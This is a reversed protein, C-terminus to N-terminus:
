ELSDIEKQAKDREKILKNRKAVNAEIVDESPHLKFCIVAIIIGVLGFLFLIGAFEGDETACLIAVVVFIIGIAMLIAGAIPNLPRRETVISSITENLSKLKGELFTKKYEPM